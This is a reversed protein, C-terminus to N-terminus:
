QREDPKDQVYIIRPGAWKEVHNKGPRGIYEIHEVSQTKGKIKLWTLHLHRAEIKKGCHPCITM